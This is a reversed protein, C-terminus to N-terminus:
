EEDLVGALPVEVVVEVVLVILTPLSEVPNEIPSVTVISPCDTTMVLMSLPVPSNVNLGARVEGTGAPVTTVCDKVLELEFLEKEEEDLVAAVPVDVVVDVVVLIFIPLSELLKETPSITV